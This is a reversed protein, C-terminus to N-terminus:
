SAFHVAKAEWETSVHMNGNSAVTNHKDDM